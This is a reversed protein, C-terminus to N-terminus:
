LASGRTCINYWLGLHQAKWTPDACVKNKDLESKPEVKAEESSGGFWSCGAVLLLLLIAAVPRMTSRALNSTGAM